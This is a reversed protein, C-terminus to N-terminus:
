KAYTTNWERVAELKEYYNWWWTMPELTPTNNFNHMDEARSTGPKHTTFYIIRADGKLDDWIARHSDCLQLNFNYTRPLIAMRHKFYWNLLGQLVVPCRLYTFKVFKSLDSMTM